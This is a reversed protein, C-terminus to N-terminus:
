DLIAAVYVRNWTDQQAIEGLIEIDKESGIHTLMYKMLKCSPRGFM